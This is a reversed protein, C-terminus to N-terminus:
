DFAHSGASAQRRDEMCEQYLNETHKAIAEWSFEEAVATRGAAGLRERREPDALLAALAPGFKEPAGDVVVGAGRRLIESALGVEPTVIVPRGCAMAELAVNGFNESYSPMAVVDASRILRVKAEGYAPGVFRVRDAVGWHRAIAELQNLYNEEDNGAIVLDAGTVHVMAAILRDLGKKWSIRGLSLIIAQGSREEHSAASIESAYPFDRLDLGNPIVDIRRANVRLKDIEDAELRATVHISAAGAINAREFLNIWSTKLLRSKRRILDQVLMGRPALVYPIGAARAV